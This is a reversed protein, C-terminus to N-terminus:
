KFYDKITDMEQDPKCYRRGECIWVGPKVHWFEVCLKADKMPRVRVVQIAKSDSVAYRWESETDLTKELKSSDM